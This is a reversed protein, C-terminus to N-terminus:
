GPAPRALIAADIGGLLFRGNSAAAEEFQPAEAFPDDAVGTLIHQKGLPVRAVGDQVEPAAPDPERHKRVGPFSATM